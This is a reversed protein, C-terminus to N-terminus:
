EINVQKYPLQKREVIDEYLSAGTDYMMGYEIGHIRNIDFYRIKHLNLMKMNFLQMFPVFRTKGLNKNM